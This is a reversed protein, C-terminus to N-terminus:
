AENGADAAEELVVTVAIRHWVPLITTATRQTPPGARLELEGERRLLDLEFPLVAAISEIMLEGEGEVAAEAIASVFGSLSPLLDEEFLHVPDRM